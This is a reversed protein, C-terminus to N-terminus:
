HEADFESQWSQGIEQLAGQLDDAPTVQFWLRQPRFVECAGLSAEGFDARTLPKADPGTCVVVCERLNIASGALGMVRIVASETPNGSRQSRRDNAKAIIEGTDSIIAALMGSSTQTEADTRAHLAVENVRENLMRADFRLGSRSPIEGVDANWDWPYRNAFQNMLEIARPDSLRIVQSGPISELLDRRGAFSKSEAIVFKRLGFSALEVLSRACMACPSLTTAFVVEDWPLSNANSLTRIAATEGHDTPYGPLGPESPIRGNVGEALIHLGGARDQHVAAGAIPIRHDDGSQKALGIAREVALRAAEEFRGLEALSSM